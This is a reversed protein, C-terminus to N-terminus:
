AADAKGAAGVLAGLLGLPAGCMAGVVGLLAFFPTRTILPASGNYNAIMFVVSAVLGFLAGAAAAQGKGARFGIGVALGGWILLTWFGLFLAHASAWGVVAGIGSAM